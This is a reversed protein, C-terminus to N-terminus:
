DQARYIRYTKRPQYVDAIKNNNEPDTIIVRHKPLRSLLDANGHQSGPKYTITYNYAGLTLAWHQLRASAMAPTPHDDAFLYQVYTRGPVPSIM